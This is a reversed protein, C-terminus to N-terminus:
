SVWNPFCLLQVLRRARNLIENVQDAATNPNQVALGSKEGGAYFDQEDDDGGDDDEDSNKGQGQSSSDKQLDRLTKLGGKPKQRPKGTSPGSAVSPGSFTAGSITQGSGSTNKASSLASGSATPQQAEEEDPAQM